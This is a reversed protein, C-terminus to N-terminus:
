CGLVVVLTPARACGAALARALADPRLIEDERSLYIGQGRGGHSTIFVFCGEGPRARLGAIRGLVQAVTAPEVSPDNPGASASLRHIGPAAVGHEGLWRDVARIANDFVPQANDGAVLVAQWREAAAAGPVAGPAILALVLCIAALLRPLLRPMPAM